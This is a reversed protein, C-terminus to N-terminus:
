VQIKNDRLDLYVLSTLTSIKDIEINTLQNFGLHLQQLSLFSYLQLM